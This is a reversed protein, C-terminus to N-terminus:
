GFTFDLDEVGPDLFEIEFKRDSAVLTSPANAAAGPHGLPPYRLESLMLLFEAQKWLDDDVAWVPPRPHCSADWKLAWLLRFFDNAV